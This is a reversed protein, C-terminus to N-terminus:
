DGRFMERITMVLPFSKLCEPCEQTVDEYQPGPQAKQLWKLLHQRDRSSLDLIPGMGRVPNNDISVVLERLLLSNLEADTKKLNEGTYVKKQAAGDVARIEVVSQSPCEVDFLRQSRDSLGDIEVGKLPVDDSYSYIVDFQDNCYPCKVHLQQTDGYTARRIQLVLLDRDGIWLKDLAKALEREDTVEGVRVTGARVIADIYRAIDGTALAREIAEEDRGRLERVEASTYRQGDDTVHGAILTVSGDPPGKIAFDEQEEGLVAATVANFRDPDVEPDPLDDRGPVPVKALEPDLEVEAGGNDFDLAMGATM